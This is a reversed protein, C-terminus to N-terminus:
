GPLDGLVEHDGALATGGLHVDCAALPEPEDLAQLARVDVLPEPQEALHDLPGGGRRGRM